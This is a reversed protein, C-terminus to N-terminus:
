VRGGQSKLLTELVVYQSTPLKEASAGEVMVNAEVGKPNHTYVRIRSLAERGKATKYPIMGRISRKVYSDSRLPIYPGKRINSGMAKKQRLREFLVSKRGSIISQSANIIIVENGLIAQKAAFSAYRGLILGKADIITQTM